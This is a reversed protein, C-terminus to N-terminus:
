EVVEVFRRQGICSSSAMKKALEASKYIFEGCTEPLGNFGPYLNLWVELPEPKVRYRDPPDAFAPDNLDRWSGKLDVNQITKGEALAQVLPLYDKANEKTM